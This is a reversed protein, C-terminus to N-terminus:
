HTTVHKIPGRGLPITLREKLLADLNIPSDGVIAEVFPVLHPAVAKLRETLLPMSVGFEGRESLGGARGQSAWMSRLTVLKTRSAPAAFHANVHDIFTTTM